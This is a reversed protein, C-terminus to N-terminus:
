ASGVFRGHPNTVRFTVGDFTATWGHRHVVHHHYPCLLVLNSVATVGGIEWPIVHHAHCWSPRRGCGPYRCGKDRAAIARRMWRPATRHERGVDLPQSDPGLIIRSVKADCLIEGLQAPSLSPGLVSPMSAVGDRVTEWGIVIGVHPAEAAEVPLNEHDLFYRGIRVLADARRKAPSRTDDETPADTAATIAEDLTAGSLDDLDGSLVWRDSSKSLHVGNLDAPERDDLADACRRCHSIVARLARWDRAAAYDVLTEEVEAYAAEHGDPRGTCITRAAAASIEGQAWCKATLPLTECALGADLSAKAESWRQGTQFEVWAPTSAAGDGDPIGRRHLAALLRAAYGELRDIDRRLEVFEARMAADSVLSNHTDVLEDVLRGITEAM